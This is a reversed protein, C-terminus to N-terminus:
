YLNHIYHALLVFLFLLLFFLLGNQRAKQTLQYGCWCILFVQCVYFVYITVAQSTDTYDGWNQFYPFSTIESALFPYFIEFLLTISFM